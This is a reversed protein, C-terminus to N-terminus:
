SRAFSLAQDIWFKLAEDTRYGGVAVYVMGPLPRGTFDMPRVYPLALAERYRGPGVRVMLDRGVIGCCMNGWLMFAAGGFMKKETIGPQCALTQRVREALEEGYAM